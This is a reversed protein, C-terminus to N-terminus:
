PFPFFPLVPSVFVFLLVTSKFGSLDTTINFLFQILLSPVAGLLLPALGPAADPGEPVDVGGRRWVPRPGAEAGMLVCTYSGYSRGPPRPM